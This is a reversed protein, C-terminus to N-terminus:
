HVGGSLHVNGRFQVSSVASGCGGGGIRVAPWEHAMGMGFFFGPWKNGALGSGGANLEGTQDNVFRTDAYVGGTTMSPKGFMAGYVLDGFTRAALCQSLGLLKQSNFYEIVDSFLANDVREPQESNGFADPAYGALGSAGCAGEGGLGHISYFQPSAIAVLFPECGGFVRSYYSGNTNPDFGTSFFWNSAAATLATFGNAITSNLSQKSYAMFRSLLQHMFSQIYNGAVGVGFNPADYMAYTNTGHIGSGSVADSWPRNLTMHTSDVFTCGWTETQLTADSDANAFGFATNGGGQGSSIISSSGGQRNDQVLFSYTGGTYPWAAAFTGTSGSFQFEAQFVHNPSDTTDWVLINYNDGFVPLPYHTNTGLSGSMLTFTSLGSTVLITGSAVGACMNSTFTQGGIAPTMATSGNSLAMMRNPYNAVFIAPVIIPVSFSYDAHACQNALRGLAGAGSGASGLAVNWAAKNTADPDFLAPITFFSLFYAQDRTDAPINNACSGHNTNYFNVGSTAWPRIDSWKVQTTGPYLVLAVEAGLVYAGTYLPLNGVFGSVNQPERVQSNSVAIAENLAATYGSRFYFSFEQLSGSGYFDGAFNACCGLDTKWSYKVGSQTQLTSSGFPGSFDFAAQAFMATESECGSVNVLTRYTGGTGVGYVPAALDNLEVSLFLQGTIQYSLGSATDASAPFPHDITLSTTGGVATIQRWFAFPVASTTTGSVRIMGGAFVGNGSTWNTGAGIVSPSGATLMVTGTSYVVPGPPGPVGAPCIPRASDTSFLTSTGKIRMEAVTTGTSWSTAQQSGNGATGPYPSLGRGDYGITLTADGTIATTATVRILEGGYGGIMLWTPLTTLSPLNQATHIAISLTTANIGGNLTAGAGSGSTGFGTGFLPYAITGTGTTQWQAGESPAVNNTIQLLAAEIHRDDAYCWPNYGLAQIPGFIETVNADAPIVTGNADIGIAGITLDVCATGNSDTVCLHANYPTGTGTAIVPTGSVGVTTTASTPSTITPSNPGATITWLYTLGGSGTSGTAVLQNVHNGSTDWPVGIEPHPTLSNTTAWCPASVTTWAKPVPPPGASFPNVSIGFVLYGDVNADFVCNATTSVSAQDAIMTFPRSFDQVRTSGSLLYGPAGALACVNLNGVVSSFTGTTGNLPIDPDSFGTGAAFTNPAGVSLGSYVATDAFLGTASPASFTITDSSLDTSLVDATWMTAPFGGFDGLPGTSASGIFRWSMGHSDSIAGSSVLNDQWHQVVQGALHSTAVTCTQPLGGFAGVGTQYTGSGQYICNMGPVGRASVHFTRAPGAGTVSSITIKELDVVMDFSSPWACGGCGARDKVVFSMDGAGINANLTGEMLSPLGDVWLWAVVKQGAPFGGSHTVTVTSSGFEGNTQCGEIFITGVINTHAPCAPNSHVATFTVTASDATNSMSDVARAFITHSGATLTPAYITGGFTISAQPPMAPIANVTCSSVCLTGDVYWTLSSITGTTTVATGMVQNTPGTYQQAISQGSQPSTLTVTVAAYAPISLLFGLLTKM